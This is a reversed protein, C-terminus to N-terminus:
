RIRLDGLLSFFWICLWICKACHRFYGFAFHGFDLMDWSTFNEHSANRMEWFFGCFGLFSKKLCEPIRVNPYQAFYIQSQIQTNTNRNSKERRSMNLEIEIMKILSSYSRHHPHRNEHLMQRQFRHDSNRFKTAYKPLIFNRLKEQFNLWKPPFLRGLACSFAVQKVLNIIKVHSLTTRATALLFM